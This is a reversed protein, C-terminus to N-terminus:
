RKRWKKKEPRDPSALSFLWDGLLILPILVIAFMWFTSIVGVKLDYDYDHPITRAAIFYAIWAGALYFATCGLIVLGIM